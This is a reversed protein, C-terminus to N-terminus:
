PTPRRGSAQQCHPNSDRRPWPPRGRGFATKRWTTTGTVLRDRTWPLRVSYPADTHSRSMEVILSCLGSYSQQRVSFYSRQLKQNWSLLLTEKEFFRTSRRLNPERLQFYTTGKVESLNTRRFLMCTPINCSRNRPVSNLEAWRNGEDTVWNLSSTCSPNWLRTATRVVEKQLSCVILLWLAYACCGCMDSDGMSIVSCM